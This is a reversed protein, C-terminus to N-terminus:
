YAECVSQCSNSSNCLTCLPLVTTYPMIVMNM